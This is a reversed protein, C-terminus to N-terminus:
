AAPAFRTVYWVALLLGFSWLAAGLFVFPVLAVRTRIALGVPGLLWGSVIAFFLAYSAPAYSRNSFRSPENVDAVAMWVHTALVALNVFFLASVWRVRATHLSEASREKTEVAVGM